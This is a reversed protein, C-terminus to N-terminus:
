VMAAIGVSILSSLDKDAGVVVALLEQKPLGTIKLTGPEGSGGSDAESDGSKSGCTAATMSFVIVAAFAIACIWHIQPGLLKMAKKM